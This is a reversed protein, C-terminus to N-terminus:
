TSSGILAAASPAPAAPAEAFRAISAVLLFFFSVALLSFGWTNILSARRAGGLQAGEVHWAIGEVAEKTAPDSSNRVEIRGLGDWDRKAKVGEIAPVALVISGLLGALSSILDAFRIVDALVM